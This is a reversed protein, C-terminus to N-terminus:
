SEEIRVLEVHKKIKILIKIEKGCSLKENNRNYLYNFILSLELLSM